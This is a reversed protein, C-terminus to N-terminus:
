PDRPRLAAYTGEHSAVLLAGCTVASAVIVRGRGHRAVTALFRDFARAEPLRATAAFDAAAPALFEMASRQVVVRTEVGRARLALHVLGWGSLIALASLSGGFATHRHNLNPALPARLVLTTGDWRVATAGLGRTLPIHAHLYATLEDLNM